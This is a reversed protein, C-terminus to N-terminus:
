KQLQQFVEASSEFTKRPNELGKKIASSLLDSLKPNYSSGDASTDDAAVAIAGGIQRCHEAQLDIKLNTMLLQDDSRDMFFSILNQADERRIKGTSLGYQYSSSNTKLGDKESESLEPLTLCRELMKNLAVHAAVPGMSVETIVAFGQMWDIEGDQLKKSFDRLLVRGVDQEQKSVSSDTFLDDSMSEIVEVEFSIVTEEFQSYLYYLGGGVAVLLLLSIILFLKLCGGGSKEEEM